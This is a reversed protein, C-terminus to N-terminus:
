RIISISGKLVTEDADNLHISYFYTGMPVPESKYNGDWESAYGKSEYVTGGWRNYITVECGPYNVNLNPIQFFDNDGDANPTFMTPINTSAEDCQQITLYLTDRQAGCGPYSMYYVISVNGISAATLQTSPVYKNGFSANGAIVTWITSQGNVPETGTLTIPLAELCITTDPYAIHAQPILEIIMTDSTTPCNGSSVTWVIANTGENLNSVFAIPATPDDFTAGAPATWMGTGATPPMTQILVHNVSCAIMSDQLSAASPLPSVIVVVTDKSFGCAPSNVTWVIKNTGTSLSTVDTTLASPSTVIGTGQLVSWSGTGSTPALATVSTTFTNCLRITDTSVIATDPYILVEVTFSCSASNGSSDIVTYTQTTIGIPFIGGSTLGSNDTQVVRFLCNDVGAPQTYTVLPSCSTVNQPCSIGPDQTEIVQLNFTCSTSNSGADTVTLTVPNPGAPVILGPAPSQTVTYSTCNDAVGALGTYDAITHFCSTGNTVTQTGPCTITAPNMDIPTVHTICTASNGYPDTVTLSVATIGNSPAGAPPNQQFTLMGSAACGDTATYTAELNPVTYNCPNSIAVATDSLCTIVPAVTDAAYLLFSCTQTNGQADTAQLQVTITDTFALTAPPTQTFTILGSATCNDTAV